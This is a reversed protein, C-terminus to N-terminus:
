GGALGLRALAAPLGAPLEAWPVHASPHECVRDVVRQSPVQVAPSRPDGLELVRTGAPAFASLHLASGAAGALVSASAALRVQERVALAEPAVVDFGADAFARDLAADHGEDTRTARGAEREARHFASRSLFVRPGDPDLDAAAGAAVAMRRWVTRAQEWAWGNVVLGRGPVLLREVVVNDDAVVVQPLHGWGALDLLTAQAPSPGDVPGSFTHFVVGRVELLSAPEPWLTTVTELFFHGFHRVWHGGYLWTGELRRAGPQRAPVRDPDAQALQAGHLGGIKQSSVVLRGRDDHVAGRIWRTPEVITRLRGRRM